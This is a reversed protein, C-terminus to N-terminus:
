MGLNLKIQDLCYNSQEVSEQDDHKKGLQLGGKCYKEAESLVGKQLLVLGLNAHVVGVHTKDDLSNGILLAEKLYKEARTYDEARFTTIGLDNLLLMSKESNKGQIESCVKYAENLYELSKENNGIDLLYQAYWDNIVGFLVQADENENKKKEIQELCWRYGIDAKELDAKLQCIRALKLSIHIVQLDDQSAGSGILLQLVNVFLKEAKDLNYTDFALNAMLDYCYLIGQENQQQQALRLALHLMQEAMDYQERQTCLVARKLTMILESEKQEDDKTFGLWTLISLALSKAFHNAGLFNPSYNSAKLILSRQALPNTRPFKITRGIKTYKLNLIAKNLIIFGSRFM